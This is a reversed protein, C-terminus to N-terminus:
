VFLPGLWNFLVRNLYKAKKAEAKKTVAINGKRLYKPVVATARPKPSARPRKAASPDVLLRILRHNAKIDKPTRVVM